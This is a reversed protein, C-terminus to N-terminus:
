GKAIRKEIEAIARYILLKTNQDNEKKLIVNLADLSRESGKAFLSYIASQKEDPFSSLLKLINQAEFLNDNIYKELSPEFKIIKLIESYLTQYSLIISNLTSITLIIKDDDLLEERKELKIILDNIEQKKINVIEKAEIISGNFKHYEKWSFVGFIFVVIAFFISISGILVHSYKLIFEGYLFKQEKIESIENSSSLVDGEKNDINQNIITTKTTDKKEQNLSLAPKSFFIILFLILMYPIFHFQIRIFSMTSLKNKM